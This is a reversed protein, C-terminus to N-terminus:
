ARRADLKGAILAVMDGVSHLRDIERARLAIGFREEVGVVLSLMAISDWGAVDRATMEPRLVVEREFVTAFIAALGDEVAVKNASDM